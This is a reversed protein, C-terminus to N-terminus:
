TVQGSVGEGEARRVTMIMGGAPVVTAKLRWAHRSQISEFAERLSSHAKMRLRREVISRPLTSVLHVEGKDTLQRLIIEDPGGTGRPPGLGDVMNRLYQSGLGGSCEAVLILESNEDMVELHNAAVFLSNSLTNDCGGGGCGLLMLRTPACEKRRMTNLYEKTSGFADEVRGQTIFAPGGDAEVFSLVKLSPLGSAVRMAFWGPDADSGPALRRDWRKLAEHMLGAAKLILVHAGTYGFVPDFRSEAVALVSSKVISAPVKVMSGDVLTLEEGNQGSDPRFLNFDEDGVKVLEVVKGMGAWTTNLKEVIKASGENGDHLVVDPAEVKQLESNILEDTMPKDVPRLVEGLNEARINIVVEASGYPLWIEPMGDDGDGALKLYRRGCSFKKESVFLSM